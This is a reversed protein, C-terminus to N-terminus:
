FESFRHVPSDKTLMRLRKGFFYLPIGLLLPGTALSFQVMAPGVLGYKDALTPVWYSMAFGCTNKIVTIVVMIEGALPKYCDIAYATAITPVTTVTVGAFGYGIVLIIHWSWLNQYALGGVVVGIVTIVFFPILAPLRMEAERIGNNKRAGRKAAFDSMPGATLLGILGGVFFAFNGYGLAATSFDYPPAALVETETLAYFLNINISGACTVGAWLIIPYYFIRFPTLLDRVVFSKWRSDPTQWLKFQKKSPRGTGVLSTEPSAPSSATSLEDTIIAADPTAKEQDNRKNNSGSSAAKLTGGIWQASRKYKTEPFLFLLTLLNFGSLGVSLWFFSRWGHVAAISGAIIAGLFIGVFYNVFYIGTWFGREHLFFMDSVVQMMITESGATALGNVIRSALFSENSTALAEWVETLIIFIALLLSTQRRGFINSFPVILLNAYGQALICGGTLLNLQTQNLGWEEALLAFLPAVSLAAEVAVFTYGFQVVIVLCKWLPSWNLPDSPDNSPQPILIVDSGKGQNLHSTHDVDCMFDTGPIFETGSDSGPRSGVTAESM